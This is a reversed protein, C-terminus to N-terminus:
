DWDNAKQYFNKMVDNFKMVADNVGLEVNLVGNFKIRTGSKQKTKIWTIYAPFPSSLVGGEPARTVFAKYVTRSDESRPTSGVQTIFFERGAISITPDVVLSTNLFQNSEQLNRNINREYIFVVESFSYYTKDSFYQVLEKNELDTKERLEKLREQFSARKEATSASKSLKDLMAYKKVPEILKVVLVGKNLRNIREKSLDRKSISEKKEKKKKGKEKKTKVTPTSSKPPVFPVTMSTKVRLPKLKQRGPVFNPLLEVMRLVEADCSVCLSQEIRVDTIRGDKEVVFGVVVVGEANESLAEEPYNLNKAIFKELKKNSCAVRASITRDGYECGSFIPMYKVSEHVKSDQASVTGTFLSFCTFFFLLLRDLRM